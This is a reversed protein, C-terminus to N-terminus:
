AEDWRGRLAKKREDAGKARIAQQLEHYDALNRWYSEVISKSLRGGVFWTPLRYSSRLEEPKSLPFGRRQLLEVLYDGIKRVHGWVVRNDVLEASSSPEAAIWPEKATLPPLIELVAAAGTDAVDQKIKKIQDDSLKESFEFAEMFLAKVQRELFKPLDARLIEVIEQGDRYIKEELLDAKQELDEPEGTVGSNVTLKNM